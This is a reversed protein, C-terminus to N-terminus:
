PCILNAEGEVSGVDAVINGVSTHNTITSPTDRVSGECGRTSAPKELAHAQTTWRVLVQNEPDERFNDRSWGTSARPSRRLVIKLVENSMPISSVGHPSSPLLSSRVPHFVNVPERLRNLVHVSGFVQM